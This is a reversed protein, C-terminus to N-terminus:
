NKKDLRKFINLNKSESCLCKQMSKSKREFVLILSVFKHVPFYHQQVCSIKEFFGGPLKLLM